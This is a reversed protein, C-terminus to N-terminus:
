IKGIWRSPPGFGQEEILFIKDFTITMVLTASGSKIYDNYIESFSTFKDDYISDSIVYCLESESIRLGDVVYRFLDVKKPILHLKEM